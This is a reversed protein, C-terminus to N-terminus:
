NGSDKEDKVEEKLGYLEFYTVLGFADVTFLDCFPEYKIRNIFTQYFGYGAGFKDFIIKDPRDRLIIYSLDEIQKLYEGKVRLPAIYDGTIVNMRHIVTPFRDQYGIEVFMLNYM